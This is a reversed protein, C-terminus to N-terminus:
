SEEPMVQSEAAVKADQPAHVQGPEKLCGSAKALWYYVTSLAFQRGTRAALWQRAEEAHPWRGQALGEALEAQVMANVTTPRGPSFNRQLLAAVGGAQFVTIYNFVSARCVGTVQAIEAANMERQAVLLLVQLRNRAWIPLKEQGAAELQEVAMPQLKPLTRM